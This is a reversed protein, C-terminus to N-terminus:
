AQVIDPNFMQCPDAVVTMKHVTIQNNEVSIEAVQALYTDDGDMLAIGRFHGAPAPKEWGSREAVLRLVNAFLPQKELMATRYAFPNKGTAAAMEDVFSENAFANIAHSVSRWYGARLGTDHIVVDHRTNPIEYPAVGAGVKFADLTDKPLGFARQSVSQSTVKFMTASPKGDAGLCAALQNLAM